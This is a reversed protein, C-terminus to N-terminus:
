RGTGEDKKELEVDIPADGRAPEIKFEFPEYGAKTLKVGVSKGAPLVLDLPSIGKYFGDIFVRCKDPSPRFSITVEGLM